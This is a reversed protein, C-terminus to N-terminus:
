DSYDSLYTAIGENEAGSYSVLPTIVSTRSLTGMQAEFLVDNILKEALIQMQTPLKELKKAVNKGIIDFESEVDDACIKKHISDM